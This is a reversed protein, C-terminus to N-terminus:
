LICALILVLGILALVISTVCASVKKVNIADNAKISDQTDAILQLLLKDETLTFYQPYQELDVSAGRYARPWITYVAATISGLLSVILPVWLWWPNDLATDLGFIFVAASFGLMGLATTDTSNGAGLVLGLHNQRVDLLPQLNQKRPM